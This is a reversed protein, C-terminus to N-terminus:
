EKEVVICIPCSSCKTERNDWCQQCVLLGCKECRHFKGDMQGKLMEFNSTKDDRECNFEKSVKVENGCCDCYFSLTMEGSKISYNFGTTFDEAIKQKSM